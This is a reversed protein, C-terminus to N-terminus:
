QNDSLLIVRGDRIDVPGCFDPTYIQGLCAHCLQLLDNKSMHLPDCWKVHSPVWLPRHIWDASTEQQAEAVLHRTYQVLSRQSQVELSLLLKTADRPKDLRQQVFSAIDEFEEGSLFYREQPREVRAFSKNPAQGNIHVLM